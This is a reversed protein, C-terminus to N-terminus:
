NSVTITFITVADTTDVSLSNIWASSFKQRLAYAYDLVVGYSTAEGVLTLKDGDLTISTLDADTPLTDVAVSRLNDYVQSRGSSLNQLQTELNQLSQGSQAIADNIQEAKKNEEQRVQAQQSITNYETQARDFKANTSNTIGYLPFLIAIGAIIGPVLLIQKTPIHPHYSEPLVNINPIKPSEPLPVEKLALGINVAYKAIPLDPPCELPSVLSGVQYGVGAAVARYVEADCALEGTLFLPIAQSLPVDPHSSDYFQLVRGFEETLYQIRKALSYDSHMTLTRIIVPIGAEVVIIDSSEMEMDIILAESLNVTRVLALPKLDISRPTIDSQHLCNLEADLSNRPTGLLLYQQSENGSRVVQWSLYLTELAVPMTRKAESVLADHMLQGPLKPLDPFRQICQFGSLSAIVVKCNAGPEAVLHRIVKSVAPIDVILGEKVLGPDLSLSGWKEVRKGNTVLFRLDTSEINLTLIRKNSLM